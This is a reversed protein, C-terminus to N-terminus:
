RWTNVRATPRAGSTSCAVIQNFRIPPRIVGHEQTRVSQAGNQAVGLNCGSEAAGCIWLGCDFPQDSLGVVSPPGSLIM